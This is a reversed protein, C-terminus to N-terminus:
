ENIETLWLQNLFTRTLNIVLLLSLATNFCLSLTQATSPRKETMNLIFNFMKISDDRGHWIVLGLYIVLQIKCYSFNYASEHPFM